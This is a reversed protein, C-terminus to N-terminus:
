VAAAYLLFAEYMPLFIRCHTLSFPGSASTLGAVAVVVVAAAAAMLVAAAAVVASAAVAM